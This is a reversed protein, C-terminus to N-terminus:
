ISIVLAVRSRMRSMRIGGSETKPYVQQERLAPRISGEWTVPGESLLESMLDLDEELRHYQDCADGSPEVGVQGLVRERGLLELVKDLRAQVSGFEFGTVSDNYFYRGGMEPAGLMAVVSADRYFRRLYADGREHSELAARVMPWGAALGRLVIPQSATLIDDTLEKPGVGAIERIAKPM